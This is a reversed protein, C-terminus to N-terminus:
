REFGFSPLVSETMGAPFNPFRLDWGLARLKRNSVLKNSDGRKKSVVVKGTPLPRQLRMSLWLFADRALIPQDDVVNYIQGGLDTRQGALLFLAAAIDDRHAQNIFRDDTRDRVADGALFTRLLFSRSPGYVGALRLVIGHCALVLDEAERLVQGKEHAPNAPSTEDVIDGRQQAYVSTSSTFFLRASPFAHLLRRAGDLYIRRYEEADGGRSSACQVVVDFEEHVNSLAAADTIDVARVVYPKAALQGASEVSATWGQVKWGSKHFLDATAEGVYGCGAILIRPM